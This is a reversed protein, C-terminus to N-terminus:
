VWVQPGPGTNEVDELFHGILTMITFHLSTRSMSRSTITLARPAWSTVTVTSSRLIEIVVAIRILQDVAVGYGDM